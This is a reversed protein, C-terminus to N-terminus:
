IYQASGRRANPSGDPGWSMVGPGAQRLRLRHLAQALAAHMCYSWIAGQWLLAQAPWRAGKFWADPLCSRALSDGALESWAQEEM